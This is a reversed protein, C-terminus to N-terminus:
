PAPCGHSTNIIKMINVIWVMLLTVYFMLAATSGVLKVSDVFHDVTGSTTQRAM